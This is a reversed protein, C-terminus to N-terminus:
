SLSKMTERTDSYISQNQQSQSLVSVTKGPKPSDRPVGHPDVTTPTKPLVHIINSITPASTCTITATPSLSTITFHHTDRRWKIFFAHLRSQHSICSSTIPFNSAHHLHLQQLPHCWPSKEVSIPVTISFVPTIHASNISPTGYPSTIRSSTYPPSLFPPFARHPQPPFPSSPLYLLDIIAVTIFPVISDFLQQPQLPPPWPPPAEPPRSGWFPYHGPLGNTPRRRQARHKHSPTIM